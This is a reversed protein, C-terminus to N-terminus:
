GESETPLHGFLEGRLVIRDIDFGDGDSLVLLDARKGVEISGVTDFVGVECAPNVTACLIAEELPMRAFSMLNRVACDLTLMSGALAGDHTVAKGNKVTVPMGAISYEGDPCGTAEMSDSILVLRECGKVRAALRVMEECIHVGDCILEAYADGDFAACVAGGDRHHLSPMTNFLHTYATVGRSEAVKAEAFTATTHGLGLTAGIERAKKAFSGDTDLEYAASIHLARCMRLPEADLEGADLPALMEPAHAGRKAVNLYRGELHVGCFSAEDARPVFANIAETASYMEELPASALTPMVTTVGHSAYSRAMACLDADAGLVFDSGVRGHTHVDILGPVIRKGEANFVEEDAIDGVDGLAAIIGDKILIDGDYFCRNIHDYIKSNRILM